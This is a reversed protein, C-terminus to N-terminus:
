LLLLFLEAFPEPLVQLLARHRCGSESLAKSLVQEM